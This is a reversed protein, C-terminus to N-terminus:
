APDARAKGVQWRRLVWSKSPKGVYFVEVPADIDFSMPSPSRALRAADSLKPGLVFEGTLLNIAIGYGHCRRMRLPERAVIVDYLQNARRRRWRRERRSDPWGKQHKQRWYKASSIPPRGLLLNLDLM